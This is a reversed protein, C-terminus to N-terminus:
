KTLFQDYNAGSLNTPARLIEDIEADTLDYNYIFKYKEKMEGRLDWNFRDPYLLMAVWKWMLPSEHSPPSWRYGGIPAKYIRRNKVASVNGLNPDKYIIDPTLGPEFGGLIIVEPDWAILQEINIIPYDKLNEAPNVGGATKIWFGQYTTGSGVQLGSQYHWLYITRPRQGAPVDKLDRGIDELTQHHWDLIKKAKKEKGLVKGYMTIADEICQQDGFRVLAVSLGANILPDIIDNGLYGWQFVIDPDLNLITEVNPHFGENVIDDRIQGANPFIKKLIGENFASKASPHMGIIKKSDGDIAMCISAHPIPITVIREATKKLVVTRGNMDTVTVESYASWPSLLITFGVFLLVPLLRRISLM